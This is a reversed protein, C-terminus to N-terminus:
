AKMNEIRQAVMVAVTITGTGDMNGTATNRGILVLVVSQALM